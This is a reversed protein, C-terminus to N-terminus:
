FNNEAASQTDFIEFIKHLKTVEFVNKVKQDMNCIRFCGGTKKLRQLLEIFTALGSSDIYKVASFDVIIKKINKQVFEEFAKRLQPSTNINIDGDIRCITIDNKSETKINM